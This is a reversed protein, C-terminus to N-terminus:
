STKHTINDLNVSAPQYSQDKVLATRYQNQAEKKEGQSEHIMGLVNYAEPRESDIEVAKTALRAADEGNGVNLQHKALHIYDDYSEAESEDLKIRASLKEVLTKIVEPNLPKELFDVAGDKMALVAEHVDARGSIMCVQLDPYDKTLSNLLEIGNADPLHLDLFLIEGGKNKLTEVLDHGSSVVHVVLDKSANIQQFLKRIAPDEDAVIISLKSSM